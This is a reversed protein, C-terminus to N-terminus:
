DFLIHIMKSFTQFMNTGVFMWIVASTVGFGIIWNTLRDSKSDLITKMHDGIGNTFLM